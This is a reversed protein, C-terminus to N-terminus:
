NSGKKTDLLGILDEISWIYSEVGAAMAPTRPYPTNLSQHPRCLNYYAFHIAIAAMHNSLKKSFGNTLRPFRRMGMRMTLNQREVFSTSIYKRDPNGQIERIETSRIKAPSYMREGEQAPASAYVKHIVAYDIDAGFAREVANIYLRLGDASLQIRNTIRSALDAIFYEADAASREGVLWTPVLKTDADIAVWTWVDGFGLVGENQPAVNRAKNHCFSWIEDCEIRRCRLNSFAADQYETVAEGLDLLLKLVTNKAVGTIRTTANIGMGEVLCSVIQARKATSLRNM